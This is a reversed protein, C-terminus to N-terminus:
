DPLPVPVIAHLQRLDVRVRGDREVNFSGDRNLFRLGSQQVMRSGFGLDRLDERPSAGQALDASPVAM